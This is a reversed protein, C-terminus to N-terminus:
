SRVVWTQQPSVVTPVSQQPEAAIPAGAGPSCAQQQPLWAQLDAVRRRLDAATLLHTTLHETIGRRATSTM